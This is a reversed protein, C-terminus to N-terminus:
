TPCLSNAFPYRESRVTCRFCKSTASRADKARGELSRQFASQPKVAAFWPWFRAALLAHQVEKGAKLRGIPCVGVFREAQPWSPILRPRIYVIPM